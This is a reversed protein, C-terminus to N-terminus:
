EGDNTEKLSKMEHKIEALQQMVANRFTVEHDKPEITIGSLNSYALERMEKVAVNLIELGKKILNDRMVFKARIWLRNKGLWQRSNLQQLLNEAEILRSRAGDYLPTSTENSTRLAQEFKREIVMILMRVERMRSQFADRMHCMDRKAKKISNFYVQISIEITGVFTLIGIISSTISLPSDDCSLRKECSVCTSTDM